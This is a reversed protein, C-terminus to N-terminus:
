SHFDDLCAIKFSFLCWFFIWTWPENIYLDNLDSKMPRTPSCDSPGVWNWCHGESTPWGISELHPGFLAATKAIDHTLCTRFHYLNVFSIWFTQLWKFPKRLIKNFTWVKIDFICSKSSKYKNFRIAWTSSLKSPYISLHVWCFETTLWSDEPIEHRCLKMHSTVWMAIITQLTVHNMTCLINRFM